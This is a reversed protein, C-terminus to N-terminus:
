NPTGSYAAALLEATHAVQMPVNNRALGDLIHMRCASCGTVLLEAGTAAVNRIKDDNISAALAYHGASFTGACGCCRDADRMEIFEVGPISHILKRPQEAVGMGRALHCPDHYTIKRQVPNFSDSYNYKVLFDSFDYIKKRMKEWTARLPDEELVAGYEHSLATGCTACATIVADVDLAALISVNRGALIAAASFDGSTFVPTGCCSLGPHLIVEVENAQLVSIVALGAKPYVYNLMCGPFFAVRAKVKGKPSSKEPALWSLHVGALRPILRRKNLGAAPLPFRAEYGKGTESKKFFLGQTFSGLRLVFEFFARYRLSTLAMSKLPSLPAKEAVQGRFKLFLDTTKISAPCASKCALCLACRSVSEALVASKKIRGEALARLQFLRGRAAADDAGVKAYVPCVAQCSGCFTCELVAKQMERLQSSMYISVRYV